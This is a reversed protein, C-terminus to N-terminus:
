KVSDLAVVFGGTAARGAIVQLQQKATRLSAYKGVRVRYLREGDVESEFITAFGHRQKMYDAMVEANERQAYAGVQIGFQGRDYSIPARYHTKGRKNSEQYGLAEIKVPTLGCEIMGLEKAASYSLDMIRGSIFPGRDNIRVITSRGNRCNLVRVHVGHPLTNHAATMAHMNYVEGNSTRKGHFNSGYWSAVGGQVFKGTSAPPTKAFVPTASPVLLLLILAALIRM